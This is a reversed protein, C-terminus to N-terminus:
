KLLVMKKTADFEGATIHYLYIGSAVEVGKENKGDWTTVMRGAPLDEDVLQRVRQGVINYVGLTVHSARPLSFEIQTYPNFPNPHNQHLTFKNPLEGGDVENVDLEEGATFYRDSSSWDGLGCIGEGQVRWYYVTGDVLGFATYRYTDVYVDILPSSFDNDDDIQVQYMDTWYYDQWELEAPLPVTPAEHAPGVLVPVIPPYDKHVDEPDGPPTWEGICPGKVQFFFEGTLGELFSGIHNGLNVNEFTHDYPIAGTLGNRPVTDWFERVSDDGVHDDEWIMLRILINQDDLCSAELAGTVGSVHIDVLEGECVREPFLDTTASLAPQHTEKTNNTESDGGAAPIMLLALLLTLLIVYAFRRM